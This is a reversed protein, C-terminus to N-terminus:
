KIIRLRSIEMDKMEEGKRIFNIIDDINKIKRRTKSCAKGNKVFVKKYKQKFKVVHEVVNIPPGIVLMSPSPNKYIIYIAGKQGKFELEKQLIKFGNKEMLYVLFDFFKALKAAAIEAQLKKTEAAIRAIQAKKRKATKQLKKIDIGKKEFFKISPKAAFARCAQIFRTLTEASVSATANRVAYTPDVLVIPSILKAENIEMLIEEKNKYHKALDIVIKENKKIVEQWKAAQKALNMFSKAHIVLLEVAYGSFGKIYSEAGYCNQAYCFAKAIRIEDAIKESAKGSVYKVHFYSLDTVNRAEQPKSIKLVPVIEFLIPMRTNAHVHFYDRSGHIRKHKIGKLAKELINSLESDRAFYEKYSFRVFIDIDYREKRIITNKALSGGVFVDAKVRCKKLGRELRSKIESTLRSIEMLEQESPKIAEIVSDFLEKGRRIKRESTEKMERWPKKRKKGLAKKELFAKLFSKEHM